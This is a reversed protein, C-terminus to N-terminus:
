IEMEKVVGYYYDDGACLVSYADESCDKEKVIEANETVVDEYAALLFAAADEPRDFPVSMSIDSNINNAELVFYKKM